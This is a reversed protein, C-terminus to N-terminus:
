PPHKPLPTPRTPRSVARHRGYYRRNGSRRKCRVSCYVIQVASAEIATPTMRDAPDFERGCEPCIQM